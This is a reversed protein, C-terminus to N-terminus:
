VMATELIRGFVIIDHQTRHILVNAVQVGVTAVFVINIASCADSSSAHMSIALHVFGVQAYPYGFLM